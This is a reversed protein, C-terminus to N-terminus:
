CTWTFLLTDVSHAALTTLYFYFMHSSDSLPLVSFGCNFIQLQMQHNPWSPTCLVGVASHLLRSGGNLTNYKAKKILWVKM